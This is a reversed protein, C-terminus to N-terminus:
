DHEGFATLWGWDGSGRCALAAGFVFILLLLGNDLTGCLLHGAEAAHIRLRPAPFNWIPMLLLASGLVLDSVFRYVPIEFYM